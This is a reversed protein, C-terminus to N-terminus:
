HCGCGCGLNVLLSVSCGCDSSRDREIAVYPTGCAPSCVRSCLRMPSCSFLGPREVIQVYGVFEGASTTRVVVRYYGPSVPNWHSDRQNWSMQYWAGLPVSPFLDQFVLTGDLKEIRWGTILPSPSIGPGVLFEGPVVLRFLVTECTFFATYCLPAAPDQASCNCDGRALVGVLGVLVLVLLFLRRMGVVEV